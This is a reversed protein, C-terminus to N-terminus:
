DEINQLISKVSVRDELFIKAVKDFSEPKATVYYELKGSQTNDTKIDLSELVRKIEFATEKGSNILTVSNGMVSQIVKSIIPYHTCGLILTDVDFDKVVSLYGRASELIVDDDIHGNEILPVFDPCGVSIVEVRSDAQKLRNEISMAKITAPTAIIGIRRSKSAYLASTVTPHIVDVFPVSLNDMEDRTVNSSVTGCAAAILKVGRKQLFAVNHKAFEILEEITRTGYPMRLTDGLYKVDENPLCVLLEKVCSLGGVGSDFIGIAMNNM